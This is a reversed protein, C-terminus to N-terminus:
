VPLINNQFGQKRVRLKLDKREGPHLVEAKGNCDTLAEGTAVVEGSNVSVLEVKAGQIANGKADRVEIQMRRSAQQVPSDIDVRQFPSDIDVRRFPSDIDARQALSEYNILSATSKFRTRSQVQPSLGPDDDINLRRSGKFASLSSCTDTGRIPLSPAEEQQRYSRLLHEVIDGVDESGIEQGLCRLRDMTMLAINATTSEKNAEIGAEQLPPVPLECELADAIEAYKMGLKAQMEELALESAQRYLKEAKLRDRPFGPLNENYLRGATALASHPTLGHDEWGFSNDWDTPRVVGQSDELRKMERTDGVFGITPTPGMFDSSSVRDFNLEIDTGLALVACREYMRAAKAYDADDYTGHELLIALSGAAASSGRDVALELLRMCLLVSSGIINPLFEEHPFDSCVRALALLACRLGGKAAHQLHFVAALDVNHIDEGQVGALRGTAFFWCLEMHICPEVLETPLPGTQPEPHPIEPLESWQSFDPWLLHPKLHTRGVAARRPWLQQLEDATKTLSLAALEGVSSPPLDQTAEASAISQDRYNSFRPLQLLKCADNCRHSWFFLALGKFGLNADCWLYKAHAHVAPDTYLDDVGQVDVCILARESHEFTFHSFAQPTRRRDAHILGANTNYKDYRGFVFAEVAFTPTGHPPSSGEFEVLHSMLFDVPHTAAKWKSPVMATAIRAQRILNFSEAYRKAVMQMAVDQKHLFWHEPNKYRKAVWCTRTRRTWRLIDPISMYTSGQKDVAQLELGRIQKMKFCERLAGAGFSKTDLQVLVPESMWSHTEVVYMLRHARMPVLGTFEKWAQYNGMVDNRYLKALQLLRKGYDGVLAQSSPTLPMECSMKRPRGGSCAPMSAKKRPTGDKDAEDSVPPLGPTNAEHAAALVKIKDRTPQDLEYLQSSRRVAM